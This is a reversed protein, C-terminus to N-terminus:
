VMSCNLIRRKEDWRPMLQILFMVVFSTTGWKMRGLTFSTHRVIYYAGRVRVPRSRGANYVWGLKGQLVHREPATQRDQSVRSWVHLRDGPNQGRQFWGQSDFLIADCWDFRSKNRNWQDKRFIQVYAVRKTKKICTFSLINKHWTDELPLNLVM